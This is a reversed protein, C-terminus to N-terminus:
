GRIEEEEAIVAPLVTYAVVCPALVMAVFSMAIMLDIMPRKEKALSEQEGAMEPDFRDSVAPIGGRSTEAIREVM